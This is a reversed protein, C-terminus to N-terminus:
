YKHRSDEQHSVDARIVNSLGLKTNQVTAM